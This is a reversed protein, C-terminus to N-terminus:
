PGTWRRSRCEKGVRREESRLLEPIVGTPVRRAHGLSLDVLDPAPVLPGVSLSPSLSSGVLREVVQSHRDNNRGLDHWHVWHRMEKALGHEDLDVLAFTDKVHP